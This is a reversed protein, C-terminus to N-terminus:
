LAHLLVNSHTCCQTLTRAVASYTYENQDLNISTSGNQSPPPPPPDGTPGIIPFDWVFNPQKYTVALNLQPQFEM